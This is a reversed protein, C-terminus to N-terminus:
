CAGSGGHAAFRCSGSQVARTAIVPDLRALVSSISWIHMNETTLSVSAHFEARWLVRPLSLIGRHQVRCGGCSLSLGLAAINSDEYDM